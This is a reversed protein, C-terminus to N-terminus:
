INRLSLEVVSAIWYGLTLGFLIMEKPTRNLGNENKKLALWIQIGAAM